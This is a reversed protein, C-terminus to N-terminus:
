LWVPWREVAPYIQGPASRLKASNVCEMQLIASKTLWNKSFTFLM